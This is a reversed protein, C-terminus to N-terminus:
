DTKPAFNMLGGMPKQEGPYEDLWKRLIEEDADTWAETTPTVGSNDGPFERVKHITITHKRAAKQADEWTGKILLTWRKDSM